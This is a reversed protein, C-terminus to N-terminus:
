RGKNVRAQNLAGRMVEIPAHRGTWIKFALAGQYLLMGLGNVARLGKAKAARVLRTPAPNYIIDYVAIGKPLLKIDVPMPDGTKMGCTSANVLLSSEKLMEGACKAAPIAVVRCAKFIKGIDNALEEARSSVTDYFTISRAKEKALAFGIARAAGGAGIIFINKNAPGLKLENKLSAIFGPADTNYGILSGKINLVTNVAGIARAQEDLKDLLLIIEEKYPVTVNFGRINLLRMKKVAGPFDNKRTEFLVYVANLKLKRFAASHMAPSLSKAIPYGVLGYIKASSNIDTRAGGEKM